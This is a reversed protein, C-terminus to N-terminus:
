GSLVVTKSWAVTSGGASIFNVKVTMKAHKNM